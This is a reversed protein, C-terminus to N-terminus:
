VDRQQLYFAASRTMVGWIIRAIKNAPAVVVKNRHVGREEM